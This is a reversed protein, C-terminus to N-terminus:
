RPANRTTIRGSIASKVVLFAGLAVTVDRSLDVARAIDPPEAPRGTGLPPRVEVRDGYRNEGGLRLGLAAPVRAPVWGAFDDVRASAWRTRVLASVSM